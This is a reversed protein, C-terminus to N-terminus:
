LVRQDLVYDLAVHIFTPISQNADVRFNALEEYRGIREKFLGKARSEDHLLPRKAREKAPLRGLIVDFDADIYIILSKKSIESYIPLGGGTAIVQGKNQTLENICKQELSRFYEEGKDAFIESVSCNQEKEIVTDVDVFTKCLHRALVKGVSTKGSGMFGILVVNDYVVM